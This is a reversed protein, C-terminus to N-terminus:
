IEELADLLRSELAHAQNLKEVLERKLRDIRSRTDHEPGPPEAAYSTPMLDHKRRVIEKTSFSRSWGPEDRHSMSAASDQAIGRWTALTALIRETHKDGLRRARSEPVPEFARRANIFLVQERRDVSGWGPRPSKDKNLVWLCATAETHGFVRPPLAIVCEVLDARLLGERLRRTAPQTSKAVSDAM